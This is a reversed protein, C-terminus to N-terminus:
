SEGTEGGEHEGGDHDDLSWHRVPGVDVHVFDSTPYYGVGGRGLELAAKHLDALEVGPARIDIAMGQMHLSHHAVGHGHRALRANTKPSRYGSIVQFPQGTELKASLTHLLDLLQPSIAHVQGTRFDRLFRNVSHLAPHLYRGNEFYTLSLQEGTHLNHLNVHREPPGVFAKAWSLSPAALCPTALAGAGLSFLKRRDIM